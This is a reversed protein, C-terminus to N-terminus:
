DEDPQGCPKTPQWDNAGDKLMDFLHWISCFEDGPGFQASMVRRIKMVGQADRERHFSTVGPWRTGPKPEYGCDHAFSSEADSIVPFNWGRLAIQTTLSAPSDPSALVFSCRQQLHRSFGIFGDAWLACYQCREGMNHVIILDDKDAFLENLKVPQGDSRVFTYDERVATATARRLTVLQARLTEIQKELEDIALSPQACDQSSHNPPAADNM